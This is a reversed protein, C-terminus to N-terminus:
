LGWIHGLVHFVGLIMIIWCSITLSVYRKHYSLPLTIHHSPYGYGYGFLGTGTVALIPKVHTHSLMLSSVSHALPFEYREVIVEPIESGHSFHQSQANCVAWIGLAYLILEIFLVRLWVKPETSGVGIDEKDHHESDNFKDVQMDCLYAVNYLRLWEGFLWLTAM